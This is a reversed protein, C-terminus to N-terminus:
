SESAAYYDDVRQEVDRFGIDKEYIKKFQTISKEAEGMKELAVGYEYLLEKKEDDFLEKAELASEFSGAAM